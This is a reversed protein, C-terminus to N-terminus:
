NYTINNARGYIALPSTNVPHIIKATGGHQTLEIYMNAAVALGKEM